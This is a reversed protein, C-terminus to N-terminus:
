MAKILRILTDVTYKVIGCIENFQVEFFLILVLVAVAAIFFMILYATLFASTLVRMNAKKSNSMTAVLAYVFGLVPILMIFVNLVTLPTNLVSYRSEIPPPTKMPDLKKSASANAVSQLEVNPGPKPTEPKVIKREGSQATQVPKEFIASIPAADDSAQKSKAKEDTGSKKEGSATDIVSAVTGIPAATTEVSEPIEEIRNGCVPCLEEGAKFEHGCTCIKM